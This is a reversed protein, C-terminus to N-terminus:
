NYLTRRSTLTVVMFVHPLEVIQKVLIICFFM